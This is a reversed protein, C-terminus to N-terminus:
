PTTVQAPAPVAAGANATPAPATPTAGSPIAPQVAPAVAPESPAAPAAPNDPASPDVPATPDVATDSPVPAEPLAAKRAAEAKAKRAQEDASIQALSDKTTAFFALVMSTAIFIGAASATLKKLFTNGGTGLMSSANGGGFASGMGKGAQLLVTLILFICVLVHLATVVTSM